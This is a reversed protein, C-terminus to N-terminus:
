ACGFQSSMLIPQLRVRNFITLEWKARHATQAASALISNLSEDLLNLFVRPNGIEARLTLHIFMHHKPVLVMRALKVLTMHRLCADILQHRAALTMLRGEQRLIKQYHVLAMGAAALEAGHQMKAKHRDCLDAAWRVLVGTEAGKTKLDPQARTGVMARTLQGLQDGSPICERQYWVKMDAFICLLGEDEQQRVTGEAQWVNSALSEWLVHMVYKQYVGLYCVHLLDPMMHHPQLGTASSFLPNRWRVSDLARGHDDRRSRWFVCTLPLEYKEFSGVDPVQESPSLRDHKQLGLRPVDALVQRGNEKDFALAGVQCIERRDVESALAVVIECQACQMDYDPVSGWDHGYVSVSACDYLCSHPSMCFCLAQQDDALHQLRIHQM